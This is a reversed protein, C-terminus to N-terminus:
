NAGAQPALEEFGCVIGVAVEFQEVHQTEFLEVSCLCCVEDFMDCTALLYRRTFGGAIQDHLLKGATREEDVNVKLRSALFMRRQKRIKIALSEVDVLQETAVNM